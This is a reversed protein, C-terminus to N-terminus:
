GVSVGNSRFFPDHRFQQPLVISESPGEGGSEPSEGEVLSFRCGRAM